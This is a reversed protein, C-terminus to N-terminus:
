TIVWRDRMNYWLYLVKDVNKEQGFFDSGLSKGHGKESFSSRRRTHIIKTCPATEIYYLVSLSLVFPLINGKTTVRRRVRTRRTAFNIRLLFRKKSFIRWLSNKCQIKIPVAAWLLVSNDPRKSIRNQKKCDTCLSVAGWNM